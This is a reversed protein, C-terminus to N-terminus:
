IKIIESHGSINSTEPYPLRVTFVSGKGPASQLEIKGRYLQTIHKVISLGMGTGGTKRSRSKDVRYFREFLRDFHISQIGIGTDRVAVVLQGDEVSCVITVSGQDTYKVANEVLNIFLQSLRDYNCLFPPIDRDDCLLTLTLDKESVAPALIDCIHRLMEPIHVPQMYVEQTRTETEALLLIDNILRNLRHAESEIINLFRLAVDRDDLAGSKLTDVFGTISTLPTKLEHTVTSVFDSRLKELKRIQTIESIIMIVGILRGTDVKLSPGASARFIREEYGHRHTFECSLSAHTEMVQETLTLLASSRIVDFFGIPANEERIDFLRRMAPNTLMIRYDTDLAVVGDTLGNLIATLKDNKEHYDGIIYRLARTMDQFATDLEAEEAGGPLTLRHHYRGSSIAAFAELLTQYRKRRRRRYILSIMFALAGGGAIAVTYWLSVNHDM